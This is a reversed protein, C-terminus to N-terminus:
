KRQMQENYNRLAEAFLKAVSEDFENVMARYLRRAVSNSITRHYESNKVDRTILEAHKEMVLFLDIYHPLLNKFDELM